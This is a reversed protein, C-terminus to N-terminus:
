GFQLIMLVVGDLVDRFRNNGDNGGSRVRQRAFRCEM